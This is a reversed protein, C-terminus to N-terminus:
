HGGVARSFARVAAGSRGHGPRLPMVHASLAGLMTLIVFARLSPRALGVRATALTCTRTRRLCALVRAARSPRSSSRSQCSACSPLGLRGYVERRVTGVFDRRPPTDGNRRTAILRALEDACEHAGAPGMDGQAVKLRRLRTVHGRSTHRRAQPLIVGHGCPFLKWAPPLDAYHERKAREASLLPCTADAHNSWLQLCERSGPDLVTPDIAMGTLSISPITVVDMRRKAGSQVGRRARASM